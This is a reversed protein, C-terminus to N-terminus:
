QLLSLIALTAMLGIIVGNIMLGALAHGLIGKRGHQKMRMLAIMAFALGFAFLLLSVSGSIMLVVRDETALKDGFKYKGDGHVANNAM